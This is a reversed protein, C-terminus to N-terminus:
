VYPISIKYLFWCKKTDKKSEKSNKRSEKAVCYVKYQEENVGKPTNEKHPKEDCTNAFTDTAKGTELQKDVEKRWWCYNNEIQSRRPMFNIENEKETAIECYPAFPPTRIGLHVGWASVYVWVHLLEILSM